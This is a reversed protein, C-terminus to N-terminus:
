KRLSQPAVADHTVQYVTGSFTKGGGANGLLNGAPDIVIGDGPEIPEDGCAGSCFDFLVEYKRGSLRFITGGQRAGGIFATGLLRGESDMTLRGLPLDGDACNNQSCFAYLVKQRGDPTIKYLVGCSRFGPCGPNGGNATLGFLNAAADMVLGGSPRDGDTCDPDSCFAHLVTEDWRFNETPSLKFVVGPDSSGGGAATVGYLNGANDLLLDFAPDAGDACDSQGCFDYLVREPWMQGSPTVEFAVGRGNEGGFEAVGYLPSVGDYPAGAAAGAYTLSAPGSGDACEAASCFDYLDRFSWRKGDKHPTLKFLTGGGFAGGSGAVGYIAGQNDIILHGRGPGDGGTCGGGSGFCFDHLARVKYKTKGPPRYLQFVTGHGFAGRELTEGYLNGRADQLLGNLPTLGDACVDDTCFSHLTKVTAATAAGGPVSAVVLAGLAACLRLKSLIAGNKQNSRM